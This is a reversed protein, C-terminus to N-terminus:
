RTERHIFCRRFYHLSVRSGAAVLPLHALCVETSGTSHMKSNINKSLCSKEHAQLLSIQICYRKWWQHPEISYLASMHNLPLYWVTLDMNSFDRKKEKQWWLLSHYEWAAFALKISSHFFLKSAPLGQPQSYIMKGGCHSHMMTQATATLFSLLPHCQFTGSNLQRFIDSPQRQCFAVCLSPLPYSLVVVKFHQRDRERQWVCM